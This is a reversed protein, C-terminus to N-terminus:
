ATMTGCGHILVMAMTSNQMKLTQILRLTVTETSSVTLIDMMATDALISVPCLLVTATKVQVSIQVAGPMQTESVDQAKIESENQIGSASQIQFGEGKCGSFLTLVLLNGLVLKGINKM